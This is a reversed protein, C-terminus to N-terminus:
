ETLSMLQNHTMYCIDVFTQAKLTVRSIEDAFLNNHNILCGQALIDIIFENGDFQESVTVLGRIIIFIRDIKDGKCMILDGPRYSRKSLTYIIENFITASTKSIKDLLPMQRLVREVFNRYPDRYKNIHHILATM